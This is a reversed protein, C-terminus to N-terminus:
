QILPTVKVGTWASIYGTTFANVAMDTLEEAFKWPRASVFVIDKPELAFDAKHGKLMENTNVVFTRPNSLSGRVVLVRQRFAAKTFGGRATIAAIVSLPSNAKQVGPATVEGLVYVDDGGGSAIYIYDGPEIELNQRLDGKLLLAEINLPLRKGHRILIAHSLDAFDATGSGGHSFTNNEEGRSRALADLITVPRDMSYAGSGSPAIIYYKKSRLEAPSVIVRPHKYFEALASELATRLEDISLGEAQVNVQLFSINGDPQVAIQAHALDPRGYMGLNLVDGAGLTYRTHWSAATNKVEKGSDAAALKGAFLCALLIVGIRLRM